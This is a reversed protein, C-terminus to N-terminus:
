WNSFVHYKHDVYISFCDSMFLDREFKEYDIYSLVFESLNDAYCEDFLEVAYALESDWEGHYHDELATIADKINEGYHLYLGAGLYGYKVCFKALKCAEKVGTYHSVQLGAFDDFDHIEWEEADPEPSNTLMERIELYVDELDQAADIWAGHLHGNNYAALCAVYIQPRLEKSMFIEEFFSSVKGNLFLKGLPHIFAFPM